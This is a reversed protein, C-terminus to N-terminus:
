DVTIDIAHEAAAVAGVALILRERPLQQMLQVFAQGETEGIVGAMSQLQFFRNKPQVEYVCSNLAEVNSM